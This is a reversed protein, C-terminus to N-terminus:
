ANWEIFKIGKDLVIDRFIVVIDFFGMVYFLFVSVSVKGVYVDIYREVWMSFGNLLNFYLKIISKVIEFVIFGGIRM